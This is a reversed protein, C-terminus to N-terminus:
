TDLMCHATNDDTDQGARCYKEVNDCLPCLKRFVFFTVSCLIHTRIKELVVTQFMERELFQALYSRLHINNKM